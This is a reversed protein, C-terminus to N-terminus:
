EANSGNFVRALYDRSGAVREETSLSKIMTKRRFAKRPRLGDDRRRIAVRMWSTGLGRGPTVDDGHQFALPSVSQQCWRCEGARQPRVENATAALALQELFEELRRAGPTARDQDNVALRSDALRRQEIVDHLLPVGKPDCLRHPDFPLDLERERGKLLQACGDEREPHAKRRRLPVRKADCESEGWPVSRAWEKDAESDQTQQGLGGFVSREEADDVVRLPEILSRGRSECENSPAKNGLLNSQQEGRAGNTFREDSQRLKPNLWEPM